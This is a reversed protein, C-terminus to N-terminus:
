PGRPAPDDHKPGDRRSLAAHTPKENARRPLRSAAGYLFCRPGTCRCAATDRARHDRGSLATLM